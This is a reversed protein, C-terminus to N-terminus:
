SLTGTRYKNLVAHMQGTMSDWWNIQRALQQNHITIPRLLKYISEADQQALHLGAQWAARWRTECDEIEDYSEDIVPDFTQYGLRRLDRLHHQAGFLVFIRGAVLPKALKETILANNNPRSEVVLSFWSQNYINYPIFEALDVTFDDHRFRRYPSLVDIPLNLNDATDHHTGPVYSDGGGLYNLYIKNVIATNSMIQEYLFDRHARQIGMICDFLYQPRNQIPDILQASLGLGRDAQNVWDFWPIYTHFRAHEHVASDWVHIRSDRIMETRLSEVNERDVLFILDAQRWAVTTKLYFFFDETQTGVHGIDFVAVGTKSGIDLEAVIPWDAPWTCWLTDPDPYFNSGSNVSVTMTLKIRNPGAM